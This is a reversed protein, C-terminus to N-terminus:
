HPRARLRLPGNMKLHKVTARGIPSIGELILLNTSVSFHDMWVDRRPNFLREVRGTQPDIAVTYKSKAKNCPDCALALNGMASSGGGSKPKIHELHFTYGCVEQLAHCYECCSGARLEVRLRLSRGRKPRRAM